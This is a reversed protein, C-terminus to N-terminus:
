SLCSLARPRVVYNTISQTACQRGMVAHNPRLPQEQLRLVELLLLAVELAINLRPATREDRVAPTEGLDFEFPIQEADALDRQTAERAHEGVARRKLHGVVIRQRFRDVDSRVDAILDQIPRHRQPARTLELRVAVGPRVFQDPMIHALHLGAIRRGACSVRRQELHPREARPQHQRAVDGLGVGAHREALDNFAPRVLLDDEVLIENWRDQV